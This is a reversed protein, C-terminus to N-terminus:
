NADRAEMLRRLESMGRQLRGEVAHVSIGTIAAIEDLPLDLYWHLVLVLRKNLDLRRLARRLEIGSLGADPSTEVARDSQPWKLVSWWRSRRVTRCENAVIGLFWPRLEHGERLQGLRRWAKFAAEQVADEAAQSDHLMGCALRYGPELSPELLSMFAVKDGQKAAQVLTMPVTLVAM